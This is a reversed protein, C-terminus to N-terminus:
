AGLLPKLDAAGVDGLNESGALITASRGKRKRSLLRARAVEEQIEADSKRPAAAPPPAMSPAGGGGFM